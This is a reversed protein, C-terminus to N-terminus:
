FCTKTKTQALGTIMNSQNPHQYLVAHLSKYIVTTEDALFSSLKMLSNCDNYYLVYLETDLVNSVFVGNKSQLDNFNQRIQRVEQPSKPPTYLVM